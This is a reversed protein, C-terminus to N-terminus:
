VGMIEYHPAQKYGATLDSVRKITFAEPLLSEKVQTETYPATGTIETTHEGLAVLDGVKLTFFVVKQDAPLAIWDRHPRYAANQEVLLEYVSALVATTGNTNKISDSEWRCGPIVHRVWCDKQTAPDKYRNWVTVFQEAGIM